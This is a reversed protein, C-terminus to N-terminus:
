PIYAINNGPRVGGVIELSSQGNVAVRAAADGTQNSPISLKTTWTNTAPSYVNTTTVQETSGDAKREFGGIVYLKGDVATGIAGYRPRPLPAKTTWSNTTPDYVELKKSDTGPTSGGAVYFKGGITGAVGGLHRESATPLTSWRDTVPNYRYFVTKADCIEDNECGTLVYLKDNIVGTFGGYTQSPMRRKEFWTNTAPNYVFLEDRVNSHSAFGGSIYLKGKIVGIGNTSYRPGPLPARWIWRNSAASYAQTNSLNGGTLAAGGVAYLTSNGSPHAISGVALAQRETSPLDARRVWTNSTLALEPIAQQQPGGAAEPETSSDRCSIVLFGVAPAIALVLPLKM